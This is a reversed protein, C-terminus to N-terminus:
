SYDATITGRRGDLRMTGGYPLVWQPRTHGFPVGVCVVADNNYRAFQELVAERQAARLGAREKPPPVSAHTGVPPRAIVAGAVTALLGREGLARLWRKILTASPVEESSELLLISGRLAELPPLRDAVALQDIVEFCGGWTRGEATREPGAWTWPETPERDGYDTLAEPSLWDPGFDESIGPETIGLQGGDFLAARLSALHVPDIGPGAGLHVQTSGGHYGPVGLGWLWNLLNTNDSYGFFPKPNAAVLKADLHPIVTVQDDGGLTAFIAGIGPDAFAVNLDAARDAPAAGLTRTTPFEVPVLGLDERIRDMAQEHVAPGFGPAAFSPSLVAVRDGATLKPLPAFAETAAM